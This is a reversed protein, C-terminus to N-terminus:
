RAEGMANWPESEPHTSVHNVVEEPEESFHWVIGKMWLLPRLGEQNNEVGMKDIEQM